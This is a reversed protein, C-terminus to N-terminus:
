KTLSLFDDESLIPIGLESAKKNKASTSQADNNILYTTKSSVTEVVKGGREEIFVKLEDRNRFSKLKGTIVFIKGEFLNNNNKESSKIIIFNKILDDAVSYDFSLINNIRIDGLNDCDIFNYHEDIKRRFEEYTKIHKYIEKVIARGILPIGLASIFSVFDTERSNEIAALINDVSKEGFGEKIVWEKRHNKLLYIDELSNLWGFSMLKEITAKSLGKIDLGKKGCFHEIRNIFKGDCKLNPCFLEKSNETEIVKLETSCFPCNTPCPIAFSSNFSEKDAWVVQPIIMNMKAVRIKQGWYPINLTDKLINLNHLSARSVKSNNINVEKFMAIPSLTGYRGMTWDISILETEYEEDYFKYAIGGLPCKDTRGKAEYEVCNNFKFVYGDLPYCKSFNRRLVDLESLMEEIGLNFDNTSYPVVTFGIEAMGELKQDLTECDMGEICDWAVFSLKRDRSEKSDLLRISGSAFNRPNSFDKSFFENFTDIRCIVEGDIVVTRDKLPIQIPINSIVKANSTILEGVEGNGRTEAKVLEGNEYTLSVTLGDMKFMGIISTRRKESFFSKIENIDKTKDLSLMLHNHKVKPLENEVTYRITATPSDPYKIGTEAEMEKLKFYLEDYDKDSVVPTGKEYEDNLYNLQKILNRM